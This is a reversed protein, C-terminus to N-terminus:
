SGTRVLAQGAGAQEAAKPWQWKLGGKRMHFALLSSDGLDRGVTYLSNLSTPAFAQM